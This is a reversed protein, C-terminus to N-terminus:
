RQQSLEKSIFIHFIQVFIKIGLARIGRQANGLHLAGPFLAVPAFQGKPLVGIKRHQDAADRKRGFMKKIVHGEMDKMQEAYGLIDFAGDGKL